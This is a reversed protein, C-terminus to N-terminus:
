THRCTVPQTDLRVLQALRDKAASLRSRVTGIPCGLVLAIEAYSMDERYRLQLVERQTPTLQDMADLMGDPITDDAGADQEVNAVTELPVDAILERERHQKRLWDVARHRTTRYLWTRFAGPSALSSISRYVAIWVEQQVDDASDGVIGRLFGLTRAVFQGMLLAFARDDGAQGRLVLLHLGLTAVDTPNRKTM